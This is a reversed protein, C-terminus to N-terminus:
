AAKKSTKTATAAEGATSQLANAAAALNSETVDRATQILNEFTANTTNLASKMAAVIEATGAPGSKAMGDLMAHLSETVESMRKASLQAVDAQSKVLVDNVNRVYEAAKELGQGQFGARSSFPDRLGEGFLPASNASAFAFVSRAADINLTTLRESANLVIEAFSQFTMINANAADTLNQVSPLSNM